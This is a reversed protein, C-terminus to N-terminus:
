PAAVRVACRRVCVMGMTIATLASATRSPRTSLKDRGAAVCGAVGEEGRLQNAFLAQLVAHSQAQLVGNPPASADRRRDRTGLAKRASRSSRAGTMHRSNFWTNAVLACFNVEAM